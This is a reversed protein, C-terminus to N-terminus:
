KTPISSCLGSNGTGFDATASNCTWSTTWNDATNKVAGISTVASFFSALTTADFTAVGLENAGNIFLSALTTTFREGLGIQLGLLVAAAGAVLAAGRALARFRVIRGLSFGRLREETQEVLREAMGQRAPDDKWGRTAAGGRHLDIVTLLRNQIGGLLREIRLAVGDVLPRRVAPLLVFLGVAAAVAGWWGLFVTSRLAVPLPAVLDLLVGGVIWALALFIALLIGAALAVAILRLRAAAVLGALKATRADLRNTQGIAM